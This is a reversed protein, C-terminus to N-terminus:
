SFLRRALVSGAAFERQELADYQRELELAIVDLAEDGLAVGADDTLAGQMDRCLVAATERMRAFAREGREVQAVDLTLAVEQLAAQAPDDALAAQADMVLSLVPPLGPLTAPVVLRGPVAGPVFGLHAAHQLVYGPSWAAARSRLVFRLQADHEAAFQDLERARAMAERMDPLEVAGNIADAFTQTKVVFESYEIENLPGARNALQVGAQFQHYRVGARPTEWQGSAEVCGEIAFPKGGARRTTPLHPLLAEGSLPAEIQVLALVDLLADLRLGRDTAAAAVPVGDAVPELAPEIGGFHSGAGVVADGNTVPQQAQRPQARRASWAGHAVLVALVLGGLIALALQLSM